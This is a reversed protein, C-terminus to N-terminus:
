ADKSHISLSAHFDGIDFKLSLRASVHPCVSPRSSDLRRKKEIIFVCRVLTNHGAHVGTRIITDGDCECSM